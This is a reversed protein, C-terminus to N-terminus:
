REAEHRQCTERKGETFTRITKRIKPRSPELGPPRACGPSSVRWACNGASNACGASGAPQSVPGPKVEDSAAIQIDKDVIFAARLEGAAVVVGLRVAVM